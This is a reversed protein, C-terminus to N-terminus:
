EHITLLLPRWAKRKLLSRCRFGMWGPNRPGYGDTSGPGILGMNGIAVSGLMTAAAAQVKEEGEKPPSSVFLEKLSNRRKKESSHEQLLPSDRRRHSRNLCLLTQLTTKPRRLNVLPSTRPSQTPSQAIGCLTAFLKFKQLTAM